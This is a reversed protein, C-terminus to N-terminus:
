ESKKLRLRRDQFIVLMQENSLITNSHSYSFRIFLENELILKRNDRELKQMM